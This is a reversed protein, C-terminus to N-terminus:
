IELTEPNQYTLKDTIQNLVGGNPYFGGAPPYLNTHAQQELYVLTGGQVPADQALVPLAMAGVAGAVLLASLAAGRTFHKTINHISL